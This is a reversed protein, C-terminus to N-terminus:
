KLAVMVKATMVPQAYPPITIGQITTTKDYTIASITKFEIPYQYTSSPWSLLIALTGVVLIIYVAIKAQIM